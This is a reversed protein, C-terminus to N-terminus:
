FVLVKPPLTYVFAQAFPDYISSIDDSPTLISVAVNETLFRWLWRHFFIYNLFSMVEKKM